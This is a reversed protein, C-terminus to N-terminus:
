GVLVSSSQIKEGLIFRKVNLAAHNAAYEYAGDVIASNHPSGFFNPLELFPFETHYDGEAIPERWWADICAYGHKNSRLWNYLAKQDVIDGRAINIIIANNKMKSFRMPNFLNHTTKNLAISLVVIDSSSLVEHLDNLTGMFKVDKESKGSTNIGKIDVGLPSLLRSIERGTSGYGIIGCTLGRLMRTPSFQDWNGVLLKNHRDQLKRYHNILVGVVYEAMPQAFAGGNHALIASTPIIEFPYSDVGATLSQILKGDFMDLEEASLEKKPRLVIIALCEKLAIFREEQSIKTLYVVDAIEAIARDIGRCIEESAEFSVTVSCRRMIKKM